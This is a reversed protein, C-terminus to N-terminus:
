EEFALGDVYVDVAAVQAGVQGSLADAVARRVDAAVDVLRHGYYAQITISVAVKGDEGTALKIGATPVAKDSSFAAMIASFTGATGVGAVGEVEAAALSIITEAVGPALQVGELQIAQESDKM